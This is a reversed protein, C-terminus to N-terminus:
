PWGGSAGSHGPSSCASREPSGVWGRRSEREDVLVSLPYGWVLMMFIIILWHWLSMGEM